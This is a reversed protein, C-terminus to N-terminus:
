NFEEAGTELSDVISWTDTELEDDLTVEITSGAAYETTTDGYINAIITVRIIDPTIGAGFNETSVQNSSLSFPMDVWDAENGSGPDVAGEFKLIAYTIDSGDTLTFKGSSGDANWDTLDPVEVTFATKDVLATAERGVLDNLTSTAIPIAITVDETLPVGREGNGPSIVPVAWPYSKSVTLDTHYLKTPM